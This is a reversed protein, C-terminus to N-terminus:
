FCGENRKNIEQLTPNRMAFRNNLYVESCETTINGLNYNCSYKKLPKDSQESLIQKMNKGLEKSM